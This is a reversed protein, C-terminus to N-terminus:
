KSNLYKNLNSADKTAVIKRGMSGKRNTIVLANYFDTSCSDIYSQPLHRLPVKGSLGKLCATDGFIAMVSTDIRNSAAYDNLEDIICQCKICSIIVTKEKGALHDFADIDSDLSKKSSQCASL